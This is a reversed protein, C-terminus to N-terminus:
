KPKKMMNRLANHLKDVDLREKGSTPAEEPNDDAFTQTAQLLQMWKEQPNMPKRPPLEIRDKLKDSELDEKRAYPTNTIISAFWDITERDLDKAQSQQNKGFWQITRMMLDKENEDLDPWIKIYGLLRKDFVGKEVMKDVMVKYFQNNGVFYKLTDGVNDLAFNIGGDPNLTGWSGGSSFQPDSQIIPMMVEMAKFTPRSFLVGGQNKGFEKISIKCLRNVFDLDMAGWIPLNTEVLKRLGTMKKPTNGGQMGTLKLINNKNRATVFGVSNYVKDYYEQLSKEDLTQKAQVARQGEQPLTGAFTWKAATRAYHSSPWHQLGMKAMQPAYTRLYIHYLLDVNGGNASVLEDWSMIALSTKEQLQESEFFYRKARKSVKM